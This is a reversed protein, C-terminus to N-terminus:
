KTARLLQEYRRNNSHTIAVALADSTDEAWDPNRVNLLRSVMFAVQEKSARGVGVVNKKVVTPEYSSVPLKGQVCAAIAAGRAQGLKLASLVNKSVFINEIAAETPKHMVIIAHLESFILGLRETFDEKKSANIVGATILKLQGSVDEIIGYGTFRSGPDIGLIIVPSKKEISM